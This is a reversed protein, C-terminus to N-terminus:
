QLDDPADCKAVAAPLSAFVMQLATYYGSDYGHARRMRILGPLGVTVSGAENGAKNLTNQM